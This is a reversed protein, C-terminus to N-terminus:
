LRVSRLRERGNGAIDQYVKMDECVGNRLYCAVLVGILISVMAIMGIGVMREYGRYRKDALLRTKIDGPVGRFWIHRILIETMVITFTLPFLVMFALLVAWTSESCVISTATNLRFNVNGLPIPVPPSPSVSDGYGGKPDANIPEVVQRAAIVNMDESSLRFLKLNEPPGQSTMPECLTLTEHGGDWLPRTITSFIFPPTPFITEQAPALDTYYRPRMFRSVRSSAGETNNKNFRATRTASPASASARWTKRLGSNTGFATWTEQLRTATMIIDMPDSYWGDSAQGNSAIIAADRRQIGQSMISGAIPRALIPSATTTTQPALLYGRPPLIPNTPLDTVTKQSLAAASPVESQPVTTTSPFTQTGYHFASWEDWSSEFSPELSPAPTETLMLQTKTSTSDHPRHLKLVRLGGELFAMDVHLFTIEDARETTSKPILSPFKALNPKRVQLLTTMIQGSARRPYIPAQVSSPLESDPRTIVPSASSQSKYPGVGIGPETTFIPSVPLQASNSGSPKESSTSRPIMLTPLNRSNLAPSAIYTSEATQSKYPGVGFGSKTTFIPSVPLQSSTSQQHRQRITSCAEPEPEYPPGHRHSESCHLAPAADRRVLMSATHTPIINAVDFPLSDKQTIICPHFTRTVPVITTIPTPKAPELIVQTSSSIALTVPFPTGNPQERYATTLRVKPATTFVSELSRARTDRTTLIDREFGITLTSLNIDARRTKRIVIRENETSKTPLDLCGRQSIDRAVKTVLNPLLATLDAGLTSVISLILGNGPELTSNTISEQIPEQIPDPEDTPAPPSDDSSDGMTTFVTLTLTQGVDAPPHTDGDPIATLTMTQTVTSGDSTGVVAVTHTTLDDPALNDSPLPLYLTVTHLGDANESAALTLVDSPTQSPTDTHQQAETPPGEYWVPPWTDVPGETYQATLTLTLGLKDRPVLTPQLSQTQSVLLEPNDYRPVSTQPHKTPITLLTDDERRIFSIRNHPFCQSSSIFPLVGLFPLWRM